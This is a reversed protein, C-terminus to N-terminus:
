HWDGGLAKILNISATMQRNSIDVLNLKAQLENNEAIAVELYTAIGQNYRNMAQALLRDSARSALTQTLNEQELQRLAVLNDEVEAFANLVTQRYNAVEEDYAAHSNKLLANLKGGDFLTQTVSPSLSWFLSPAHTLNSLLASELGVNSNFSFDPFFAARAVGIDSNAAQVRLGAAAIDPRKQLLKAPIEPLIPPPTTPTTKVAITFNAPIEGVLIAIAHETQARKIRMDASLTKANQLQTQAQDVAIEPEIGGNHRQETIQLSKNYAVVINDLIAQSSDYSRLTFYDIALESHLSLDMVALDSESAKARSESAKVSNKVKGWVDLEYSFDASVSFDNYKNKPASNAINQSLKQRSAQPNATLTPFYGARNEAAIAKAQEYRSIAAQLNQNSTTVKEELADLEKDHYNQWWKQPKAQQQPKLPLWNGVAEKYNQPIDIKPQKYKPALSCTSLLSAVGLICLMLPLRLSALRSLNGRCSRQRAIVTNPM